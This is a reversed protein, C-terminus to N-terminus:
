LPPKEVRSSNDRLGTTKGLCDCLVATGVPHYCGSKTVREAQNSQKLTRLHIGTMAGQKRPEFLPQLINVMILSALRIEPTVGETTGGAHVADNATALTMEDEHELFRM